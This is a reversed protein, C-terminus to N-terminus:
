TRTTSSSWSLMSYRFLVRRPRYSTMDALVLTQSLPDAIMVRGDPMERLGMILSFAEPFKADPQSLSLSPVQADLSGAAIVLLGLSTLALVNRKTPM